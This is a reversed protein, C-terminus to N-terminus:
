QSKINIISYNGQRVVSTTQQLKQKFIWSRLFLHKKKACGRDQSENGGCDEAEHNERRRSVFFKEEGAVVLELLELHSALSLGAQYTPRAVPTAVDIMDLALDAGPAMDLEGLRVLGQSPVNSWTFLHAPLHAGIISHTHEATFTADEKESWAVLHQLPIAVKDIHEVTCIGVIINELSSYTTEPLYQRARAARLLSCTLFRTATKHRSNLLENIIPPQIPDPKGFGERTSAIM